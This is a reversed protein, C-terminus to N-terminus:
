LVVRRLGQRLMPVNFNVLLGVRAGTLRLYSVTQAVHVAHLREVSKLEVVLQRDIFLDIRQHCVVQGRYRVPCLKEGEFPIERAALEVKVAAAYVAETMGSGLERHVALLAGITRTVLDELDPPLNSVLRLTTM